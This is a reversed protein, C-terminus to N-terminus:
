GTEYVDQQSVSDSVPEYIKTQLLEKIFGLATSAAVGAGFPIAALSTIASELATLAASITDILQRLLSVLKSIIGDFINIIEDYFNENKNKESQITDKRNILENKRVDLANKINEVRKNKDSVSCGTTNVNNQKLTSIDIINGKNVDEISKDINSIENDLSNLQSDLDLVINNKNREFQYKLKQFIILVPNFNLPPIQNVISGM